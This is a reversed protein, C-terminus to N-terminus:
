AKIPSAIQQVVHNELGHGFVISLDRFARLVVGLLTGGHLNASALDCSGVKDRRVGAHQDQIGLAGDIPALNINWGPLLLELLVNELALVLQVLQISTKLDDHTVDSHHGHDKLHGIALLLQQLRALQGQEIALILAGFLLEDLEIMIAQLLLDALQL